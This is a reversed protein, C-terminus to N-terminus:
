RRSLRRVFEPFGEELEPYVQERLTVLEEESPPRTERAGSAPRLEFGTAARVTQATEGAHLSALELLGDGGPKLVARPTVVLQPREGGADPLRAAAGTTGTLARRALEVLADAM